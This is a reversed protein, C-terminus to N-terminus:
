QRKVEVPFLSLAIQWFKKTIRAPETKKTDRDAMVAKAWEYGVPSIQWSLRQPCGGNTAFDLMTKM